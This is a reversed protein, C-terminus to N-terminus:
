QENNLSDIEEQKKKMEAMFYDRLDLYIDQIVGYPYCRESSTGFDFPERNYADLLATLTKSKDIIM